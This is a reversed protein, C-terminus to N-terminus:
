RFRWTNRQSETSIEAFYEVEGKERYVGTCTIIMPAEASRKIEIKKTTSEVFKSRSTSLYTTLSVMSARWECQVNRWRDVNAPVVKQHNTAPNKVCRICSHTTSHDVDLGSIWLRSATARCYCWQYVETIVVPPCDFIQGQVASAHSATTACVMLTEAVVQIEEM